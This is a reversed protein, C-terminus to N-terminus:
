DKKDDEKKTVGDKYKGWEIKDWIREHIYYLTLKTIVEITGISLALGIKGSLIFAILITDLTGTIRWTIGKTISRIHGEKM